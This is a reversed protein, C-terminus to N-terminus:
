WWMVEAGTALAVVDRSPSRSQLSGGAHKNQGSIVSIPCFRLATM